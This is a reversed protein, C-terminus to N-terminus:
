PFIPRFHKATILRKLASMYAAMRMTVQKKKCILKFADKKEIRYDM